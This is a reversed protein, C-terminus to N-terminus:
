YAATTKSSVDEQLHKLAISEVIDYGKMSDSVPMVMARMVGNSKNGGKKLRGDVIQRGRVKTFNDGSACQAIAYEVAQGDDVFRYGITARRLLPKSNVISVHAYRIKDNM